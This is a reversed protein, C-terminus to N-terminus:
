CGQLSMLGCRLGSMRLMGQGTGGVGRCGELNMLGRRLGSIDSCVKHQVELETDTYSQFAQMIVAMVEVWDKEGELRKFEPESGYLTEQVKYFLLLDKIGLRDQVQLYFSVWTTNSLISLHGGECDNAVLKVDLCYVLRFTANIFLDMHCV